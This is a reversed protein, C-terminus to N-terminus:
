PYVWGRYPLGPRLYPTLFIRKGPQNDTGTTGVVQGRGMSIAVHGLGGVGDYFVLAGVPPEGGQLRSAYMDGVQKANAGRLPAVGNAAWAFWAFRLCDGAWEGYPGPNWGGDGGLQALLQHDADTAYTQWRRKMAFDAAAPGRQSASGAGCNPTPVQEARPVSGSHVFGETGAFRMWFWRTIRGATLHDDYWCVM